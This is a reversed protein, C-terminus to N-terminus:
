QRPASVTSYIFYHCYMTIGAKIGYTWPLIFSFINLGHLAILSPKSFTIFNLYGRLNLLLASTPFLFVSFAFVVSREMAHHSLSQFKLLKPLVLHSPMDICKLILLPSPVMRHSRKAFSPHCGPKQLPHRLQPEHRVSPGLLLSM